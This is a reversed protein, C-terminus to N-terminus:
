IWNRLNITKPIIILYKCQLVSNVNRIAESINEESLKNIWAIQKIVNELEERDNKKLWINPSEPLFLLVM